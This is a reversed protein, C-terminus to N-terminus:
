LLLLTSPTRTFSAQIFTRYLYECSSLIQYVARIASCVWTTQIQAAFVNSLKNKQLTLCFCQLVTSLHESSPLQDQEFQWHIMQFFYLM